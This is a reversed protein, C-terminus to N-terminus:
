GDHQVRRQARAAGEDDHEDDEGNEKEFAPGSTVSEDYSILYCICDRLWTKFHNASEWFVIHDLKRSDGRYYITSKLIM